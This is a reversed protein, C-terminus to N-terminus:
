GAAAHGGGELGGVQDVAVVVAPDALPPRPQPRQGLGLAPRAADLDELAVGARRVRDGAASLAIVKAIPRRKTIASPTSRQFSASTPRDDGVSFPM